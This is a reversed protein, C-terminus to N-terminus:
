VFFLEAQSAFRRGVYGFLHVNM